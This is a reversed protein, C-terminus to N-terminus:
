RGLLFTHSHETGLGCNFVTKESLTHFFSSGFLPSPCTIFYFHLNHQSTAHGLLSQCQAFLVLAVHKNQVVQLGCLVNVWLAFCWLVFNNFLWFGGLFCYFFVQSIMQCSAPLINELAKNESIIVSCTDRPLLTKLEWFYVRVNPM